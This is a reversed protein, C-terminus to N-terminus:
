QQLSVSNKALELVASVQDPKVTEYGEFFSEITGGSSLHEFLVRIPVRTGKFCTEGSLIEPDSQLITQPDIVVTTEMNAKKELIDQAM